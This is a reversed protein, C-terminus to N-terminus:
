FGQSLKTKVTKGLIKDGSYSIEKSSNITLVYTLVYILISSPKTANTNNPLLDWENESKDPMNKGIRHITSARSVMDHIWMHDLWPILLHPTSVERWIRNIPIVDNSNKHLAM